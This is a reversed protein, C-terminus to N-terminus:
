SGLLEQLVSALLDVPYPKQIWGSINADQFSQRQDESAYGTALVIKIQPNLASLRRSLEIGDMKPMRLDSMVLGIEDAHQVYLDLAEQGDEAILCRYGLLDFIDELAMRAVRDDEVVLITQATTKEQISQEGM